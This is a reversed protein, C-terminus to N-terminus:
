SFRSKKFSPLIVNKASCGTKPLPAFCHKPVIPALYDVISHGLLGGSSGFRGRKTM